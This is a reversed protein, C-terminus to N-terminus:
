VLELGGTVEDVVGEPAPGVGLATATGPEVVTHGADRVLYCPIDLRDCEEHLTSLSSADSCRVVIKKAGSERWADRTEDARLAAELSAHAVQSALKGVPLDLDGRVVIVQKLM